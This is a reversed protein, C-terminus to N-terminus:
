GLNMFEKDIVEMEEPTFHKMDQPDLREIIAKSLATNILIYRAGKLAIIEDSYPKLLYRLQHSGGRVDKATQKLSTLLHSIRGNLVNVAKQLHTTTIEL